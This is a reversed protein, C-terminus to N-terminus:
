DTVEARQTELLRPRMRLRDGISLLPNPYGDAKDAENERQAIASRAAAHASEFSWSTRIGEQYTASGFYDFDPTM